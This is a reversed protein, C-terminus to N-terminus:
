LGEKKLSEILKIQEPTLTKPYTVIIKVYLDGRDGGRSHIGLGRLRLKSHPQTGVPVKVQKEGELTPVHILTGLLADTLGVHHEVVIDNGERKFIPHPLVHVKFYLDGSPGGQSGPFGKGSLRLKKGESIGPPVKVSTDENRGGRDITFKKETGRAAEEFTITIESMMDQGKRPRRSRGGGFFDEFGSPPGGGGGFGFNRFIENVDFGEFIDEQTYRKKFGEAGFQDYQKRKDKDKLVAYAENIEKFKDEAKPDNENRDPHYKMAKKKFAKKIEEDSATKPIDLISYYNKM